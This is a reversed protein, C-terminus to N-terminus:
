LTMRDNKWIPETSSSSFPLISFHLSHQFLLLVNCILSLSTLGGRTMLVVTWGREELARGLPWSKPTALTKLCVGAKTVKWELRGLYGLYTSLGEKRDWLLEQLLAARCQGEEPDAALSTDLLPGLGQPPTSRAVAM